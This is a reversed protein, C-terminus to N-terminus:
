ALAGAPLTSPEFRQLEFLCSIDADHSMNIRALCRRRFSNKEVGADVVFYSFNVVARCRHVPHLLFLLAPDRNGGGSRGTRPFLMPDVDDVRRPCTSKVM